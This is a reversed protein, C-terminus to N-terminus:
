SEIVLYRGSPLKIVEEAQEIDDLTMGEIDIGMDDWYEKIEKPSDLVVAMYDELFEDAEEKTQAVPEKFLKNQVQLFTTLCEDDYHYM